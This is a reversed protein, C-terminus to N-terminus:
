TTTTSGQATTSSPAATTTPATVTVTTFGGCTQGAADTITFDIRYTGATAIVWSANQTTAKLVGDQTWRYTMPPVGGASSLCTDSITGTFTLPATGNLPDMTVCGAPTLANCDFPQPTTTTGGAITTTTSGATTTTTTVSPDVVDTLLGGKFILNRHSGDSMTVGVTNWQGVGGDPGTDPANSAVCYSPKNGVLNAGSRGGEGFTGFLLSANGSGIVGNGDADVWMGIYYAWDITRVIYYGAEYGAVPHVGGTNTGYAQPDAIAESPGGWIQQGDLCYVLDHFRKTGGFTQDLISVIGPGTVTAPNINVQIATHGLWPFYDAPGVEQLSYGSGVPFIFHTVGVFYANDPGTSAPADESAIMGQDSFHCIMQWQAAEANWFVVAMDGAPCDDKGPNVVNLGQETPYYDANSDDWQVVAANFASSASDEAPLSEATAYADPDVTTGTAPASTTPIPDPATGPGEASPEVWPAPTTTTTTTAASTTSTSGAVTTTTTGLRGSSPIDKLAVVLLTGQLPATLPRLPGSALRQLVQGRRNWEAASPRQGAQAGTQFSERM